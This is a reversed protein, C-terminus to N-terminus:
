VRSLTIKTAFTPSLYPPAGLFFCCGNTLPIIFCYRLSKRKLKKVAEIVKVFKGFFRWNWKPVGSTKIM